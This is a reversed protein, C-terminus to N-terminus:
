GALQANPHSVLRKKSVIRAAREELRSFNKVAGHQRNLLRILPRMTFRLTMVILVNAVHGVICLNIILQSLKHVIKLHKICAVLVISLASLM